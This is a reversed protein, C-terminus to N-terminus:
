KAAGTVGADKSLYGVAAVVAGTTIVKWDLAQGTQIYNVAWILAAGAAGAATTKWNKM